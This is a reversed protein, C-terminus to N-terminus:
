NESIGFGQAIAVSSDVVFKGGAVLGVLGGIIMLITRPLGYVKIVNDESSQEQKM